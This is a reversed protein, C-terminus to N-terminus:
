KKCHLNDFIVAPFVGRKRVNLSVDPVVSWQDDGPKLQYVLNNRTTREENKYDGSLAYLTDKYVVAQMSMILAPLPTMTTWENTAPDYSEVSSLLGSEKWSPGGYGGIVVIKDEWVVCAHHGRPTQMPAIKEWEGGQNVSRYSDGTMGYYINGGIIYTTDGKTVQCHFFTKVPIAPLERWGEGPSYILSPLIDSYYQGGTILM